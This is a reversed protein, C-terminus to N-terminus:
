SGEVANEIHLIQPPEEQMRIAVVDIRWPRKTLNQEMLFLQATRILKRQKRRDVMEEPSGHGLGTKTKVEVIVIQGRQEAIVDLEGIKNRVNFAHIKYGKAALHEAALEEGTKGLDKRYTETM